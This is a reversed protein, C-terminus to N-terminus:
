ARESRSMSRRAGPRRLARGRLARTRRHPAAPPRRSTSPPSERQPPYSHRRPLRPPPTVVGHAAANLLPAPLVADRVQRAFFAAAPGDRAELKGLALRRLGNDGRQLLHAPGDARAVAGELLRGDADAVHAVV